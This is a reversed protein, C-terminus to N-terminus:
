RLTRDLFSYVKEWGDIAQEPRYAAPRDWYFFGHGAGDYRHFEYTKGHEILRQELEDVQEPSPSRDDNGFLGLLPAQLDGVLDIPAVPYNENLDEPAMSVRGGWLDIVADLGTARCGAILAHRGGSCTGVIGVKGNLDDLGRLHDIAGQVDGVVQEDSVDGDSRVRAAVDDPLGHGARHYLNPCITIFGHHALRRVAEHSWEDFGPRHHVWVMGPYPGDGVPRAVYAGITDGGHGTIEVMGATLDPLADTRIEPM